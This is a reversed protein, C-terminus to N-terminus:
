AALDYCILLMVEAKCMPTEPLQRLGAIKQSMVPVYIEHRSDYNCYGFLYIFLYFVRGRLIEGLSM